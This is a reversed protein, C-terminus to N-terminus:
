GVFKMGFGDKSPNAKEQEEMWANADDNRLATEAIVNSNLEGEGVYYMVHYGAYSASEGYVIGTDGAKHEAYCFDNFEQVMQGKAVNEYLGGNTNSGTDESYQEALQAFREETKDGSEFEALIEEARAKAAEKAEDSYNGEEDAEAKVLIHRVNVTNYHNDDRNLFVVVYCGNEDPQVTVDGSARAADKLWASVAAPLSSGQIRTQQSGTEEESAAANVLRVAPSDGKAERYTDAIANAKTEAAALAEETVNSVTEGDANTSETREASVYAYAYDFYDESGAYSQYKEEIQEPTYTFSESLATAAKSALVSAQYARRVLDRNVGTGYNAALFKDGSAYGMSVAQEELGDFAGEVMTNDDADLTIGKEAAYKGLITEHILENRVADLFYDKWTGGNEMMNCPQKELGRIGGSTDLGFLSAYQGYQSAFNYYQNSYRYNVESATYNKDGVSFATLRYMLGSNLLLVLVVVVVVAITGITWRLQSKAKEQAEKELAITKKDTGASRAAQRLKRETSASM